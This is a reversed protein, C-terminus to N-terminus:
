GELIASFPTFAFHELVLDLTLTISHTLLSVERPVLSIAMSTLVELPFLDRLCVESPTSFELAINSSVARGDISTSSVNQVSSGAVSSCFFTLKGLRGEPEM